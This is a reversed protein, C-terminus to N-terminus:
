VPTLKLIVVITPTIFYIKTTSGGRQININYLDGLGNKLPQPSVGIVTQPKMEEMLNGKPVECTKGYSLRQTQDETTEKPLLYYQLSGTM